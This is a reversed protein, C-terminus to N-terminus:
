DTVYYYFAGRDLDVWVRPIGPGGGAGVVNNARVLDFWSLDKFAELNLQRAQAIIEFKDVAELAEVSAVDSAFAVCVSSPAEFRLYVVYEQFSSYSCARINTAAAPLPKGLFRSAERASIPGDPQSIRAGLLQWAFAAGAVFIASLVLSFQLRKGTEFAM